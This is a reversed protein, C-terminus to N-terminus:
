EGTAEVNEVGDVVAEQEIGEIGESIPEVTDSARSSEDTGPKSTDESSLAANFEEFNDANIVDDATSEATTNDACQWGWSEQKAAFAAAKQECYGDQAQAHWLDQEGDPKRYVVKCPVTQGPIEYVVEIERTADYHHCIYAPAANVVTAALFSFFGGAILKTVFHNRENM